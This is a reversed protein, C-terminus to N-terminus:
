DSVLIISNLTLLVTWYCYTLYTLARVLLGSVQTEDRFECPPLLPSARELQGKVEFFVVIINHAHTHAYPHVCMTLLHLFLLYYFMFPSFSVTETLFSTLQILTFSYCLLQSPLQTTAHQDVVCPARPEIGLTMFQVMFCLPLFSVATASIIVVPIWSWVFPERPVANMRVM